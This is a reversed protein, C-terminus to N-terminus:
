LLEDMAYCRMLALMNAGERRGQEYTRPHLIMTRTFTVDDKSWGATLYWHNKIQVCKRLRIKITYEERWGAKGIYEYYGARRTGMGDDVMVRKFM